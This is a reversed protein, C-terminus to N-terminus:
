SGHTMSDGVPLQTADALVAQRQQAVLGVRQDLVLADLRRHRLGLLQPGEDLADDGDGLSAQGLALRRGPRQVRPPQHEGVNGVLIDHALQEVRNRRPELGTGAAVGADQAHAVAAAVARFDRLDLEDAAFVVRARCLFRLFALGCGSGLTHASPEARRGFPEPPAFPGRTRPRPWASPV